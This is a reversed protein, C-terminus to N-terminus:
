KDSSITKLIDMVQEAKESPVFLHDHYFASVPNVSINHEALKSLIYALFGVAELSSYVNLTIMRFVSSYSLGNANATARSIILSAGEKETFYGVPELSYLDPLNKDTTIFVFEGSNLVPNINKLLVSLNTEAKM